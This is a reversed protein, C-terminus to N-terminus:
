ISILILMASSFSKNCQRRAVIVVSLVGVGVGACQIVAIIVGIVIGAVAGSSLGGILITDISILVDISNYSCVFDYRQLCVPAQM